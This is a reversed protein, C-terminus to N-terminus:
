KVIRKMEKKQEQQRGWQQASESRMTPDGPSSHSYGSRNTSSIIGGQAKLLVNWCATPFAFTKKEWSQWSFQPLPFPEANTEGGKQASKEQTSKSVLQDNFYHLPM